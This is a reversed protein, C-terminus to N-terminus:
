LTITGGAGCTVTHLVVWPRAQYTTDGTPNSVTASYLSFAGSAGSFQTGNQDGDRVSWAINNSQSRSSETSYTIAVRYSTGPTLGSFTWWCSAAPDNTYVFDGNLAREPYGSATTSSGTTHFSASSNDLIIASM